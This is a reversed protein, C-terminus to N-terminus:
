PSMRAGGVRMLLFVDWPGPTYELLELVEVTVGGSFGTGATITLQTPAPHFTLVQYPSAPSVGVGGLALGNAGTASVPASPSATSGDALLAAFVCGEAATLPGLSQGVGLTASIYQAEITDGVQVGRQPALLYQQRLIRGFDAALKYKTSSRGRMAQENAEVGRFEGAFRHMFREFHSGWARALRPEGSFPGIVWETKSLEDLTGDNLLVYYAWPSEGWAYVHLDYMGPVSLSPGDQCTGPYTTTAATLLNTFFLDFNPPAPYGDTADPDECPTVHLAPSAFYGGFSAGQPSWWRWRIAAYARAATFAPSALAGTAPDYAGRQQQGLRWHDLITPGAPEVPLGYNPDTLRVAESDLDLAAAGYIYTPWNSGVTAGNDEGPEGEPWEAHEPDAAQRQTFFHSQPSWVDGSPNVMQLFANRTLYAVREAGDAIGSRLRANVANALGVLQTSTIEDGVAVTPAVPFTFAV